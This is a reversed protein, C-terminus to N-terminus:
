NQIFDELDNKLKSSLIIKLSNRARFLKVKVNSLSLDTIEAIQKVPIDQLYYLAIITAEVPELLDIASKIIDSRDKLITDNLPTKESKFNYENIDDINTQIITKKRVQDIAKTYAIKMLWNPFKNRDKLEKMKKFCLVFVDQAVEESEERNKLIKYCITFVRREYKEILSKYATFSGTRIIEAIYEQDNIM